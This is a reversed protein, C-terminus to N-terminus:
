NITYSGNYAGASNSCYVEYGGTATVGYKTTFTVSVSKPDSGFSGYEDPTNPKQFTDIENYTAPFAIYVFQTGSPALTIAAGFNPEGTGSTNIIEYQRRDATTDRISQLVTTMSSNDSSDFASGDTTSYGILAPFEFNITGGNFNDTSNGTEGDLIEISYAVTNASIQGTPFASTVDTYGSPTNDLGTVNNASTAVSDFLKYTGSTGTLSLGSVAMITTAAGGNISRKVNFGTVPVGPSNCQIKFDLKTAINGKERTSNTEATGVFHSSLDQRAYSDSNLVPDVYAACDIFGSNGDAGEFDVTTTAVGDGDNPIIEVKYKFDSSGSAVSLSNDAFTFTEATVSGQTNLDDFTGTTFDNVSATANAIETYAGNGLKRYLKIERIAYASDVATGAVVAQNNNTVSFTVTHNISQSTTQYQVATESGSFSGQPAIFSTLADLIIQVASKGAGVSITDGNEFRGFSLGAPISVAIDSTQITEGSGTALVEWNDANGWNGNSLNAGKYYYMKDASTDVLITGLARKNPYDTTGPLSTAFIVGKLDNGSADVIPYDSNQNQLIDGFKIAM